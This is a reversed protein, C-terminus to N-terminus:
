ELKINRRLKNSTKIYLRHLLISSSRGNWKEFRGNSESCRGYEMGFNEKWEMAHGAPM